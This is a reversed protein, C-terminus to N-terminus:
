EKPTKILLYLVSGMSFFFLLILASFNRRFRLERETERIRNEVASLKHSFEDTRDKVMNVDVSHFLARFEAQISFLNM